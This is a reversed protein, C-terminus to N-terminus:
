VRVREGNSAMCFEAVIKGIEDVHSCSSFAEFCKQQSSEGLFEVTRKLLSDGYGNIKGCDCDNKLKQEHCCKSCRERRSELFERMENWFTKTNPDQRKIWNLSVGTKLDLFKWLEPKGVLVSSINESFDSGNMISDIVNKPIINEVEREELRFYKVVPFNVNALDRCKRATASEAGYPHYKDSDTICICPSKENELYAQFTDATQSGGGGRPIGNITIKKWKNKFYYCKAIEKFLEADLLNESLVVSAGIPFNWFYSLPIYWIADNKFIGHAKDDEVYVIVKHEVKDLMLKMESSNNYMSNIISLSSSSIQGQLNEKIHKLLPMEGFIMHACSQHAALLNELGRNSKQCNIDINAITSDLVFLM